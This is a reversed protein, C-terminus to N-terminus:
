ANPTRAHRRGSLLPVCSLLLAALVAAALFPAALGYRDALWGASVSGLLLGLGTALSFVGFATGRQAGPAVDAILSALVGQTFGMHLGWVAVGLYLAPLGDAFALIADALALLGIGTALVGHRGFRDSWRGAPYASLTFALSMAVMVLPVWADTLGLSSARLVLFAEAFRVVALGFAFVVLHWFPRGLTRLATRSFPWPRAQAADSTEPERVGIILIAVAVFAPIAAAWLAARIDSAFWLMCAIALAPGLVAGLTDMSQRLGYAAGRVATPTVDAILADRPAGRIGKGIRDLLRASAVLGVSGALPFLPKTLAALGYGLVILPKRRGIRDSIAGSFLKVALALAEAVGEILGVMLASAGLTGVMFLPLLAHIWESSMDTCLSVLGLM